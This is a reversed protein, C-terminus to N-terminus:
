KNKHNKRKATHLNKLQWMAAQSNLRTKYEANSKVGTEIHHHRNEGCPSHQLINFGHAHAHPAAYVKGLVAVHRNQQEQGGKIRFKL